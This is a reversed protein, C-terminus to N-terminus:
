RRGGMYDQYIAIGMTDMRVAVIERMNHYEYYSCRHYDPFVIGETGVGVIPTNDFTVILGFTGYVISFKDLNGSHVYDAMGPAGFYAGLTQSSLPLRRYRNLVINTADFLDRSSHTAIGSLSNVQTAGPGWRIIRLLHMSELWRDTKRSKLCITLYRGGKNYRLAPYVDDWNVLKARTLPDNVTAIVNM